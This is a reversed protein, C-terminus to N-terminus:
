DCDASPCCTTCCKCLVEPANGGCDAWVDTLTPIACVETSVNGGINNNEMGFGTLRRLTSLTTPANGTLENSFVYLQRLDTLSGLCDPMTSTFNNSDM